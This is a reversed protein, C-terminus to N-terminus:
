PTQEKAEGFVQSAKRRLSTPLELNLKEAVILNVAIEFEPVPRIVTKPVPPTTTPTAARRMLEVAVDAAQKGQAAPNIGIGLLAGARVVGTSFGFVAIRQRMAGLLLSRIAPVDYVSGDAATWIAGPRRGILEEVAAAVSAFKDVDVAEVRWRSPLAAKAEAMLRHSAAVKGRYLMGISRVEPLAEAIQAFQQAVPVDTTTGSLGSLGASNPDAVMCYVLRDSAALRRQLFTAAPTGVAIVADAKVVLPEGQAPLTDMQAQRCSWGLAELRATAAKAAEIYPAASSSLVLLGSGGAPRSTAAGAPASDRTAGAASPECFGVRASWAQVAAVILTVM